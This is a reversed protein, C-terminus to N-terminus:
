TRFRRRYEEDGENTAALRYHESGSKAPDWNAPDALVSQTEDAGLESEDGDFRVGKYLAILGDACLRIVESRLATDSIAPRGSAELARARWVVEWLGIFDETTLDLVMTTLDTTM